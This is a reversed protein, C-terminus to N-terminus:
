YGLNTVGAAWYLNAVNKQYTSQLKLLKSQSEILKDVQLNIKFLDSEGNQLNLREAAVIWQYSDVMQLQQDIIDGTAILGAYEGNITNM